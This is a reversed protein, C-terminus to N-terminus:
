WKSKKVNIVPGARAKRVANPNYNDDEDNDRINKSMEWFERAGLKFDKHEEAKISM